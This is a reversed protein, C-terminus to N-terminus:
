QSQRKRPQSRPRHARRSSPEVSAVLHEAREWDEEYDIIFGEDGATFFPAINHGEKTNTERVGKLNVEPLLPEGGRRLGEVGM